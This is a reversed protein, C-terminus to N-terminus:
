ERGVGPQHNMSFKLTWGDGLAVRYTGRLPFQDRIMTLAAVLEPHKAAVDYRGLRAVAEPKAARALELCPKFGIAGKMYSAFVSDPSYAVRTLESIRQRNWGQSQLFLSIERPNCGDSANCLQRTEKVVARYMSDLDICGRRFDALVLGLKEFKPAILALTAAARAKMKNDRKGVPVVVLATSKKKKTAM